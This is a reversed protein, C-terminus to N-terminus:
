SARRRFAAFALGTGFLLWTTPEPVDADPAIRSVSLNDILNARVGPLDTPNDGSWVRFGIIPEDSSIGFFPAQTLDGGPNTRVFNMSGSAFVVNIIAYEPGIIDTLDLDDFGVAYYPASFAVAVALFNDVDDGARGGIAQGFGNGYDSLSVTSDGGSTSLDITANISDLPGPALPFGSATEFDFTVIGPLAAEFAARDNYEVVAGFSPVSLATILFAYILPRYM